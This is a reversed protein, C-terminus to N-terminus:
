VTDDTPAKLLGEWVPIWWRRTGWGPKDREEQQRPRATEKGGKDSLMSGVGLMLGHWARLMVRTPLSTPTPPSSPQFIKSIACSDKLRLKDLSTSYFTCDSVKWACLSHFIGKHSRKPTCVLFCDCSWGQQIAQKHLGTKRPVQCLTNQFYILIYKPCYKRNWILKQSPNM